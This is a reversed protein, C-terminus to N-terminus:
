PGLPAAREVKAEAEVAALLGPGEGGRTDGEPLNM